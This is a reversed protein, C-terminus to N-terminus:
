RGPRDPPEGLYAMLWHTSGSDIQRALDPQDAAVSNAAQRCVEKVIAYIARDSLPRGAGTLDM